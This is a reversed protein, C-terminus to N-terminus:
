TPRQFHLLLLNLEKMPVVFPLDHDLEKMPVVFPLDLDFLHKRHYHEMSLLKCNISIETSLVYNLAYKWYDSLVVINSGM